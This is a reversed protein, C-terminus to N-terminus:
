RVRRRSTSRPSVPQRIQEGRIWRQGAPRGRCRRDSKAEAQAKRRADARRRAPPQDVRGDAGGGVRLPRGAARGGAPLSTESDLRRRLMKFNLMLVTLPTKLEHSAISSFLDRLRLAEASRQLKEQAARELSAEARLNARYFFFPIVFAVVFASAANAAFYWAPAPQRDIALLRGALGTEAAAFLLVPLTAGLGLMLKDEAGFLLLPIAVLAFFPLAGGSGAEFMVAGAFVCANATAILLLRSPGTRRLRTSCCCGRFGPWPGWRWPCRPTNASCCSSSLGPSWSRSAGCRLCTPCGSGSPSM